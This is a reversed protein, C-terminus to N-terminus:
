NIYLIPRFSGAGDKESNRYNRGNAYYEKHYWDGGETVCPTEELNCTETTWEWNNSAMDYINCVVDGTSGTNMLQTNLSKKRSYTKDNSCEQIFLIATNWAYSNVLDSAFNNSTYINRCAMSAEDQSIHWVVDNKSNAKNTLSNQSAEYRAIYYGKNNEVSKIFSDIDIAHTNNTVEEKKGEIYYTNATNSQRLHEEPSFVSFEENISSDENFVYRGLKINVKTSKDNSTYITGVPIWVYQNGESDEIVIGETVHSANNTSNDIVAKFGTPIIITNGYEDVAETNEKKGLMENGTCDVIKIATKGDLTQDIVDNYGQLTTNEKNQADLTNQRAQNARAFLGNDGTLSAIAIGALILLIVITIVLAVLTIGKTERKLNKM